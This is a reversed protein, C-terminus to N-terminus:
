CNWAVPMQTIQLCVMVPAFSAANISEADLILGGCPKHWASNVCVYLEPLCLFSRTPRSCAITVQLKEAEELATAQRTVKDALSEVQSAGFMCAFAVRLDSTHLPFSKHHVLCLHLHLVELWKRTFPFVQSAGFMCAFRLVSRRNHITYLPFLTPIRTSEAPWVCVATGWRLSSDPWACAIVLLPPVCTHGSGEENGEGATRSLQM